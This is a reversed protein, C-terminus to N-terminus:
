SPYEALGSSPCASTYISGWGLTESKTWRPCLRLFKMELLNGPPTSAAPKFIMISFWKSFYSSRIPSGGGEGIVLFLPYCREWTSVSLTIRLDWSGLFHLPYLLLFGWVPPSAETYEVVVVGMIILSVQVMDVIVTLKGSMGLTLPSFAALFQWIKLSCWVLSSCQYQWSLSSM